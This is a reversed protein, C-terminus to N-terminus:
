FLPGSGLKTCPMKAMAPAAEPSCTAGTPQPEDSSPHSVAPHFYISYTSSGDVKVRTCFEPKLRSFYKYMIIIHYFIFRTFQLKTGNPQIPLFSSVFPLLLIQLPNMAPAHAPYPTNFFFFLM